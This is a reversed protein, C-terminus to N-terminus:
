AIDPRGVRVPNVARNTVQHVFLRNQQLCRRAFQRCCGTGYSIRGITLKAAPSRPWTKISPSSSRIPSGISAATPLSSGHAAPHYSGFFLDNLHLNFPGGTPAGSDGVYYGIQSVNSNIPYAVNKGAETCIKLPSPSTAWYIGTMWDTFLYTREGVALTKSTGDTIKAIKTPMSPIRKDDPVFFGDLYLYGCQTKELVKSKYRGSGAVGAYNAFFLRM